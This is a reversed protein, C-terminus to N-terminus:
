TVRVIADQVERKFRVFLVAERVKQTPEEATGFKAGAGGPHPFYSADFFCIGREPGRTFLTHDFQGILGGPRVTQWKM